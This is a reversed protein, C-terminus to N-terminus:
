RHGRRHAPGGPPHPLPAAAHRAADSRDVLGERVALEQLRERLREFRKSVANVDLHRGGRSLVAAVEAWPLEQDVRLALLSQEELTLLARLRDLAQRAEEGEDVSGERIAAALESAEGSPLPCALRRFAEDRLNLAAHHAIRFAWTQLPAEHRFSPLGLWLHEAFISFADAADAENRLVSRLYRLVRPGLLELAVRAAGSFDHAEHLASFRELGEMRAM